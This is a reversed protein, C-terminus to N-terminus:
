NVLVVHFICAITVCLTQRRAVPSPETRAVRKGPQLKRLHRERLSTVAPDELMKSKRM